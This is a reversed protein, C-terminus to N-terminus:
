TPIDPLFRFVNVCKLLGRASRKRPAKCVQQMIGVHLPLDVIFQVADDARLPQDGDVVLVRQRIQVCHYSYTWATWTVLFATIGGNSPNEIKNTKEFINIVLFNFFDFRM